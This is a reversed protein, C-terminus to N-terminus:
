TSAGLYAERLLDGRERIEEGSASYTLTGKEVIFARDAIKLASVNQEVLLVTVGTSNIQGIIDFLQSVIVPALGLSAEDILLIRPNAMMGRAVALMQQEGGSLTGALQERREALRPFYQFVEERRRNLFETDSRKVWGGVVLNKDVSLAPFVRRGEPVLVVGRPVMYRIDLGTVEEEALRITGGTPRVLGALCLMTTTKGAGNLGLFVATEGEAVSFSMGHLVPLAGYSATLGEVELLAM